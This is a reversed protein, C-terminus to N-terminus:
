WGVLVASLVPTGHEQVFVQPQSVPLSKAPLKRAEVIEHNPGTINDESPRAKLPQELPTQKSIGM